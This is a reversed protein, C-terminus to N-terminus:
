PNEKLEFRYANESLSDMIADAVTSSDGISEHVRIVPIQSSIITAKKGYRDEPM